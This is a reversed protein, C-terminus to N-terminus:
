PSPPSWEAPLKVNPWGNVHVRVFRGPRYGELIEKVTIRVQLGSSGTPPDPLRKAELLRGYMKDHNQWWTRLSEDAVAVAATGHGGRSENELREYLSPDAGALLTITLTAGGAAHHEVQEIRGAPWYHRMRRLHKQRQSETAAARSKADLWLDSCHFEGNKWDAAWTLNVQVAPREGSFALSRTNKKTQWDAEPALDEWEIREQGRWIRTSRDITFSKAKAAGEGPFDGVPELELMGSVPTKRWDSGEKGPGPFFRSSADYDLSVSVAKSFQGRRQRHSFDDELVLARTQKPLWKAEASGDKPPPLLPDDASAMLFRGHLRTGLPIDALDAETGHYWVTAYPLLAVRYTPAGHYRSENFDGDLRLGVQRRLHDVSVLEGAAEIGAGAPPFERATAVYSELQPDAAAVTPGPAVGAAALAAVLWVVAGRSDRM